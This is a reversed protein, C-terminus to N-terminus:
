RMCCTMHWKTRLSLEALLNSLTLISNIQAKKNAFVMLRHFVPCFQLIWFLFFFDFCCCCCIVVEHRRAESFAM